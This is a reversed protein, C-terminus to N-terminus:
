SCAFSETELVFQGEFPVIEDVYMFPMVACMPRRKATLQGLYFQMEDDGIGGHQFLTQIRNKAMSIDPNKDVEEQEEIDETPSFFNM